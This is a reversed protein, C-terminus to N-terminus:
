LTGIWWKLQWIGRGRYTEWYYPERGNIDRPKCDMFNQFYIEDSYDFLFGWVENDKKSFQAVHDGSDHDKKLYVVGDTEVVSTSKLHRLIQARTFWLSNWLCGTPQWLSWCGWARLRTRVFLVYASGHDSFQFKWVKNLDVLFRM